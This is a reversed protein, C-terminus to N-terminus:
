LSLQAIPVDLGPKAWWAPWHPLSDSTWTGWAIAVRQVLWAFSQMATLAKQEDGQHLLYTNLDNQIAPYVDAFQMLATFLDPDTIADKFSPTKLQPINTTVNAGISDQGAGRYDYTYSYNWQKLQELTDATIPTGDSPLM